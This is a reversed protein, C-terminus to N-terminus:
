SLLEIESLKKHSHNIIDDLIIMICDHLQAVDYQTLVESQYNYDIALTEHNNRSSINIAFPVNNTHSSFWEDSYGQAVFDRNYQTQQFSVTCDLISQQFGSDRLIDNYTYKRHKLLKFTERKVTTIFDLISSDKDTDLILPLIRAYSGVIHKEFHQNRNHVLIGVALKTANTKKYKLLSLATTFLSSISLQNNECFSTLQTMTTAELTQRYRNGVGSNDPISKFFSVNNFNTLKNKWFKQDTIFKDSNRYTREEAITDLFTQSSQCGKKGYLLYECLTNGALVASWADSITHHHINFIGLSEDPLKLITFEFLANHTTFINKRVQQTVWQNFATPNDSFDLYEFDHWQHEVLYQKYEANVKTLRLKYSEYQNIIYNLAENIEFLSLDSNVKFLGAINNISSNVFIFEKKIVEQQASSLEITRMSKDELNSKLYYLM